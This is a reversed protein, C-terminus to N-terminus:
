NGSLRHLAREAAERVEPNSSRVAREMVPRIREDNEVSSLAIVAADQVSYVVTTSSHVFPLLTIRDKLIRAFAGADDNAAQLLAQIIAEVRNTAPPPPILYLDCLCTQQPESSVAQKERYHAQLVEGFAQAATFRVLHSDDSRLLELASDITAETGLSALAYATEKRVSPDPDHSLIILYQTASPIQADLRQSGSPRGRTTQISRLLIMHAASAKIDPTSDNLLKLGASRATANESFLQEVIPRASTVARPERATPVTTCGCFVFLALLLLSSWKSQSFGRM